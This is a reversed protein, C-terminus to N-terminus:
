VTTSEPSEVTTLEEVPVTNSDSVITIPEFDDTFNTFQKKLHTYAQTQIDDITDTTFVVPHQKFAPKFKVRAEKNIYYFSTSSVEYKYHEVQSKNIRINDINVYYDTIELGMDLVIKDNSIIGM